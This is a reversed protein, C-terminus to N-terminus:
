NFSKKLQPNPRKVLNQPLLFRLLLKPQQTRARARYLYRFITKFLNLRKNEALIALLKKSKDSIESDFLDLLLDVVQKRSLSPNEIAGAVEPSNAALAITELEKSTSELSSDEIAAAFMAKAYPRALPTLEIM